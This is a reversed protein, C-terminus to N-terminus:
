PRNDLVCLHKPGDRLICYNGLRLCEDHQFYVPPVTEDGVFFSIHLLLTYDRRLQYKVLFLLFPSLLSSNIIFFSIYHLLLLFVSM